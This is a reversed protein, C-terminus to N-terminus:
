DLLIKRSTSPPQSNHLFEHFSSIDPTTSSLDFEGISVPNLTRQLRKKQKDLDAPKAAIIADCIEALSETQEQINRILNEVHEVDMQKHLLEIAKSAYEMSEFVERCIVANELEERKSRITAAFETIQLLQNKIREKKELEVLAAEKNDLKDWAANAAQDIEKMLAKRKGELKNETSRLKDLAEMVTTDRRQKESKGGLIFKLAAGGAAGVTNLVEM